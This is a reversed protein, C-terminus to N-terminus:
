RAEDPDRLLRTRVPDLGLVDRRHRHKDIGVPVVRCVARVNARLMAPKWAFSARDFVYAVLAQWTSDAYHYMQVIMLRWMGGSVM